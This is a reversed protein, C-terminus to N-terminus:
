RYEHKQVKKGLLYLSNRTPVLDGEKLPRNKIGSTHIFTGDSFRNLKDEYIEGWLVFEKSSVQNPFWNELRGTINDNSM